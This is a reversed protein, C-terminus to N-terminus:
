LMSPQYPFCIQLKSPKGMALWLGSRETCRHRDMSPLLSTTVNIPEGMEPVAAAAMGMYNGGKYSNGCSELRSPWVPLGVKLSPCSFISGSVEKLGSRGKTPQKESM